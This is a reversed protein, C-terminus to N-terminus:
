TRVARPTDHAIILDLERETFGAALRAARNLPQHPRPARYQRALDLFAQDADIGREACLWRYWRNGIAVHGIEERLILDLIATAAHDQFEAFRARIGPTVDLGRAEMVRPVLAMRGLPDGRTKEALEWLGNHAEFDGYGYGRRNLEDAM